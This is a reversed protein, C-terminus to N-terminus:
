KIIIRTYPYCMWITSDNKGPATVAWLMVKRGSGGTATADFLMEIQEGPKLKPLAVKTKSTLHPGDQYTLYTGDLWKETGTNVITWRIDFDDGSRFETDDGPKQSTINCSYEPEMTAIPNIVQTLTPLLSTPTVTPPPLTETQTPLQTSTPPIETSIETATIILVVPTQSLAPTPAIQTPVCAGLLFIVAINLSIYLKKYNKM